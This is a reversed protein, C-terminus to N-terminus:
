LDLRNCLQWRLLAETVWHAQRIIRTHITRTQDIELIQSALCIQWLPVQIYRIWVKLYYHVRCFWQLQLTSNRLWTLRRHILRSSSPTWQWREWGEGMYPHIWEVLSIKNMCWLRISNKCDQNIGRRVWSVRRRNSVVRNIIVRMRAIRKILSSLTAEM